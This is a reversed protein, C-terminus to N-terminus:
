KASKNRTRRPSEAALESVVGEERTEEATPEEECAPQAESESVQEAIPEPREVRHLSTIKGRCATVMWQTNEALMREVRQAHTVSTFAIDFPLKVQVEVVGGGAPHDQEQIPVEESPNVEQVKVIQHAHTTVLFRKPADSACIQRIWVDNRIVRVQM